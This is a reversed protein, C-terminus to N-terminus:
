VPVARCDYDFLGLGEENRLTGLGFLDTDQGQMRDANANSEAQIWSARTRRADVYRRLGQAVTPAAALARALVIADEVGCAAGQGMFPTM